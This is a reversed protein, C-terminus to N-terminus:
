SIAPIRQGIHFKSQSILETSPYEKAELQFSVILTKAETDLYKKDALYHTLSINLINGTADSWISKQISLFIQEGQKGKVGGGSAGVKCISLLCMSNTKGHFHISYM